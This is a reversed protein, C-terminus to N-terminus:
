SEELEMEMVRYTEKILEEPDGEQYGALIMQCDSMMCAMMKNLKGHINVATICGGASDLASRNVDSVAGEVVSLWPMGQDIPLGDSGTFLSYFDQRWSPQLVRVGQGDAETSSGDRSLLYDLVFFADEGRKSNANICAYHFVTATVGGNKNYQPIVTLDEGSAIYPPVHGMVDGREYFGPRAYDHFYEPLQELSEWKEEYLEMQKHAYEGFEEESFSLKEAKYDATKGYIADFNPNGMGHIMNKESGDQLVAAAKMFLSDDALMDDWTLDRSPAHSAELRRFCTIPFTYSLPVLVQGKETQGVEMVTQHFDGWMAFKAKEIYKDLPMFLGNVMAKEPIPFLPGDQPSKGDWWYNTSILFLDPGEGAMVETRLRSIATEREIGTRPLYEVEADAPGEAQAIEELLKEFVYDTSNYVTRDDVDLLIRLPGTEEPSGCSPLLTLLLAAALVFAILRRIPDTRKM